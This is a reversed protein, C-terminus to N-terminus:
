SIREIEHRNSILLHYGKVCSDCLYLNTKGKIYKRIVHTAQKLCPIVLDKNANRCKVKSDKAIVISAPVIKKTYRAPIDATVFNETIQLLYKLGLIQM